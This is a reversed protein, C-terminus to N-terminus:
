LQRREDPHILTMKPPNRVAVWRCIMYGKPAPVLPHIFALRHCKMPGGQSVGNPPMSAGLRHRCRRAFSVGIQPMGYVWWVKTGTGFTPALKAGAGFKPALKAGAGFNPAPVLNYLTCTFHSIVRPGAIPRMSCNRNLNQQCTLFQAARCRGVQCSNCSKVVHFRHQFTDMGVLM